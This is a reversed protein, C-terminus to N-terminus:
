TGPRSPDPLELNIEEPGTVQEKQPLGMTFAKVGGSHGGTAVACAGTVQFSCKTYVLRHGLSGALPNGSLYLFKTNLNLFKEPVAGM